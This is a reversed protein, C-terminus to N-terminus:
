KREYVHNNLNKFKQTLKSLNHNESVIERLNDIKHTSNNIIDNIIRTIDTHDTTIIRKKKERINSVQRKNKTLRPLSKSIKVSEKM